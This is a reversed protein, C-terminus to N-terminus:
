SQRIHVIIINTFKTLIVSSYVAERISNIDFAESNKVYNIVITFPKGEEKSTKTKM